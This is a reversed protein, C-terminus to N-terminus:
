GAVRQLQQAPAQEEVHPQAPQWEQDQAGELASRPTRRVRSREQTVDLRLRTKQQHNRQEHARRDDHMLSEPEHGALELLGSEYGVRRPPAEFGGHGRRDAQPVRDDGFDRDDEEDVDHSELEDPALM